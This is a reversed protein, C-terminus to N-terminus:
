ILNYSLLLITLNYYYRNIGYAILCINIFKCIYIIILSIIDYYFINKNKQKQVNIKIFKVM